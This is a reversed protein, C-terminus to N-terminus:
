IYVHMKEAGVGEAKSIAHLQRITVHHFHLPGPKPSRQSVRHSYRAPRVPQHRHSPNSSPIMADFVIVSRRVSYGGIESATVFSIRTSTRDCCEGSFEFGCCPWHTNWYVTRM